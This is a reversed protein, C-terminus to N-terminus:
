SLGAHKRYRLTARILVIYLTNLAGYIALCLVSAILLTTLNLQTESCEDESCYMDGAYSACYIFIILFVLFVIGGFVLHLIVLVLFGTSNSRIKYGLYGTVLYFFPGVVSYINRSTSFLGFFWSISSLAGIVFFFISGRYITKADSSNDVSHILPQNDM